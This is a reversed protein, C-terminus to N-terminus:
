TPWGLLHIRNGSISEAERQGREGSGQAEVAGAPGRGVDGDPPEKACHGDVLHRDDGRDVAIDLFMTVLNPWTDVRNALRAPRLPPLKHLTM